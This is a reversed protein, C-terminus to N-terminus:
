LFSSAPFDVDVALDADKVIRLDRLPLTSTVPDNNRDVLTTYGTYDGPELEVTLRFDECPAHQQTTEQDDRNVLLEFDTTGRGYRACVGPDSRNAVTWSVTLTGTPLSPRPENRVDVFCGMALLSSLALGCLSVGRNDQNM